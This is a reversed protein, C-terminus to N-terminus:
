QGVELLSFYQNYLNSYRYNINCYQIYIIRIFVKKRSFLRHLHIAACRGCGAELARGVLVVVCRAECWSGNEATGCEGEGEAAPARAEGMM